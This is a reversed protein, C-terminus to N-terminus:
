WDIPDRYTTVKWQSARYADRGAAFAERPGREVFVRRGDSLAVTEAGPRRFGAFGEGTDRVRPHAPRSEPAPKMAQPTPRPPEARAAVVPKARHRALRAPEEAAREAAAPERRPPRAIREPAAQPPASAKQVVWPEPRPPAAPEAKPRNDLVATTRAPLPQEEPEARSAEELPKQATEPAVVDPKAPKSSARATRAPAAKATTKPFLAGTAKPAEEATESVAPMSAEATAPRCAARWANRPSACDLQAAVAPAAPDPGKSGILFFGAAGAVAALGGLAMFKLGSRRPREERESEWLWGM